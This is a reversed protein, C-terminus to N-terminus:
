EAPAEMPSANELTALTRHLIVALEAKTIPDDPSFKGETKGKMIGTNFVFSLADTEEQDLNETDDYVPFMLTMIVSLKKATFSKEIAKAAEMRGIGGHLDFGFDPETDFAFIKDLYAAFEAGTVVEKPKFEGSLDGWVGKEELSVIEDFAWHKRIDKFKTEFLKEPEENNIPASIPIIQDSPLTNTDASDAFAMGCGMLLIAGTLTIGILKKKVM